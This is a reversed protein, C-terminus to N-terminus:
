PNRQLSEHRNGGKYLIDKAKKVNSIMEDAVAYPDKATFIGSGAGAGESGAMIFQFVQEGTTIGASQEVIIDPDIERIEKLVELVYSMDSANGSGVLETPEPCIIDPRLAAIARAEDVSDACAFTLLDLENARDITQKIASLTMPRECHNMLVGKAGAEKISEPLVAGMGRGPRIADMYPALVILNGAARAVDRIETYPVIYIIDVDYKASLSDLYLGMEIVADGYIYNKVGIEFFPVRIKQKITLVGKKKLIDWIGQDRL